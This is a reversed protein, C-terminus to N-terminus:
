EPNGGALTAEVAAIVQESIFPKNVFALAGAEDVM